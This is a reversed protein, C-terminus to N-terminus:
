PYMCDVSERSWFTNFGNVRLSDVCEEGTFDEWREVVEVVTTCDDVSLRALDELSVELPRVSMAAVLDRLLDSGMLELATFFCSGLGNTCLVLGEFGEVSRKSRVPLDDEEDTVLLVVRDCRPLFTVVSVTSLCSGTFFASLSCALRTVFVVTLVDLLVFSRVLLLKIGTFTELLLPVGFFSARVFVMASFDGTFFGALVM